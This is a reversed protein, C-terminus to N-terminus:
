GPIIDRISLLYVSEALVHPIRHVYKCTKQAAQVRHYLIEPEWPLIHVVEEFCHFLNAVGDIPLVLSPPASKFPSTFALQAAYAFCQNGNTCIYTYLTLRPFTFVM